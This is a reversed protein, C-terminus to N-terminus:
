NNENGSKEFLKYELHHTAAMLLARQAETSGEPFEVVYNSFQMMMRCLAAGVNDGGGFTRQVKGVPRGEPSLVDFVMDNRFCTGGCCNNSSGNCCCQNERIRYRLELQGDVLEHVDDYQTCLCVSEFGRGCYPDCNERVRGINRTGNPDAVDYLTSTIPCCIWAGLQFPRDMLYEDAGSGGYFHLKLNRLNGCGCYNLCVREMCSSEERAMLAAPLLSLESSKPQWRNPDTSTQAVNKDDPLMGVKYINKAEYPLGVLAAATEAGQFQQQVVIGRARTLEVRQMTQVEPVVTAKVVVDSM